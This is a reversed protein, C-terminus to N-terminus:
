SRPAAAAPPGLDVGFRERLLGHRLDHDSVVVEPADLRRMAALVLAAGAVIVEARAPELGPLRRREALPLAALRGLLAEVRDRGLRHGHVAAPLYRPLGLEVAALTTPTGGLSALLEARPWTAPGAPGSLGAEAEALLAALEPPAVPDSRLHREVLPLVGLPLSIRRSPEDRGQIFETSGGGVDFVTTLRGAAAPLGGVAGLFSLRAEEDGTIVRIPAGAVAAAELLPGANGAGRLAATGVVAFRSAGLRRGEAVLEEFAVISRALADPALRDGRRGRGLGTIVVRDALRRWRRAAAPPAAVLLKLSHSGVDLAAVAGASM